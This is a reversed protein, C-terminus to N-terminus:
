GNGKSLNFTNYEDDGWDSVNVGSVYGAIIRTRNSCWSFAFADDAMLQRNLNTDTYYGYSSILVMALVFLIFFLNGWSGAAIMNFWNINGFGFPKGMDKKIPYIRRWSGSPSQKVWFNPKVEELEKAKEKSKAM